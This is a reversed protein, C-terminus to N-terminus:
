LLAKCGVMLGALVVPMMSVLPDGIVPVSSLAVRDRLDAASRDM